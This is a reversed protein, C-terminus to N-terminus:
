ELSFPLADNFPIEEGEAYVGGFVRLFELPEGKGNEGAGFLTRAGDPRCEYYCGLKSYVMRDRPDSAWSARPPRLPVQLSDAGFRPGKDPDDLVANFTGGIKRLKIAPKTTDGDPWTFLFAAKSGRSEGYRIFPLAGTLVHLCKRM